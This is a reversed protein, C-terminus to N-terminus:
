WVGPELLNSVTKHYIGIIKYGGEEEAIDYILIRESQEFKVSLKLRWRPREKPVHMENVTQYEWSKLGGLETKHELHATQFSEFSHAMQFNKGIYQDFSSQYQGEQLMKLYPNLVEAYLKDGQKGMSKMKFYILGGIGLLVLLIIFITRRAKPDESYAEGM